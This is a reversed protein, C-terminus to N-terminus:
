RRREIAHVAWEATERVNGDSDTEALDELAPLAREAALYGLAWCANARAPAFDADLVGVLPDVAFEVATPRTKAVRALISTANYRVKEDDDDLLEVVRPVSSELQRPFEDALDALLGAANARLMDSEADLLEVATPLVEEAVHPYQKALMGLVGLAAIRHTDTGDEVYEILRPAVPVVADPHAGAIRQLATIAATEDLGDEQLLAALKPVADVVMGPERDAIASVVSLAPTITDPHAGPELCAIADDAAPTVQDPYAETIAALIHLVEAQIGPEASELGATLVPIADLCAEPQEEAVHSVDLLALRREKGTATELTQLLEDVDRSSRQHLTSRGYSEGDSDYVVYDTMESSRPVTIASLRLRSRLRTLAEGPPKMMDIEVLSYGEDPYHERREELGSDFGTGDEADGGADPTDDQSTM